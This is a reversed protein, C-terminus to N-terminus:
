VIQVNFYERLYGCDEGLWSMANNHLFDFSYGLRVFSEFETERHTIELFYFCIKASFMQFSGVSIVLVNQRLSLLSIQIVTLCM